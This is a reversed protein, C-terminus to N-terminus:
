LFQEKVPIYGGTQRIQPLVESTVWKKFRKASELESGFVLSYFGSENILWGGRQGLEKYNFEIAFHSQTKSNILLKDENDVHKNLADSVNSYGLISVIDKGVLYPISNIIIGRVQGFSKNVFLQLENM